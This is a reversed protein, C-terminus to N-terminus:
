LIGFVVVLVCATLSGLAYATRALRARASLRRARRVRIIASAIVRCLANELVSLVALLWAALTRCLSRWFGIQKRSPAVDYCTVECGYVLKSELETVM